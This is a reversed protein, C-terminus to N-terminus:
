NKKKLKCTFTSPDGSKLPPVVKLPDVQCPLYKDKRIFVESWLYRVVPFTSETPESQKVGSIHIEASSPISKLLLPEAQDPVLMRFQDTMWNVDVNKAYPQALNGAREALIVDKLPGIVAFVPRVTEGTAADQQYLEVGTWELWQKGDDQAKVIDALALYTQPPLNITRTGDEHITLPVNVDATGELILSLKGTMTKGYAGLDTSTVTASAAPSEGTPVLISYLPRELLNSVGVDVTASEGVTALEFSDGVMGIPRGDIYILPVPLRGSEQLALIKSQEAAPVSTWDFQISIEEAQATDLLAIWAICLLLASRLFKAHRSLLPIQNPTHRM